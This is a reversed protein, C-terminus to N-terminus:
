NFVVAFNLLDLVFYTVFPLPNFLELLNFIGPNVKKKIEKVLM